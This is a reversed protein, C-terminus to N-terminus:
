IYIFSPAFALSSVRWIVRRARDVCRNSGVFDPNEGNLYQPADPPSRPSLVTPVPFSIYAPAPNLTTRRLFPSYQLSQYLSVVPYFLPSMLLAPHRESISKFHQQIDLFALFCNFPPRTFKGSSKTCKTGRKIQVALGDL